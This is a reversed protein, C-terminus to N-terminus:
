RASLADAAREADAVVERPFGTLELLRLANRTSSTGPRLQFDFRLEGEEIVERFHRFEWAPGLLELLELDHTSVLVVHEGGNLRELVAKSAAVRETTNTGRFIEDIVFLHQPGEAAAEVLSRIGELEALFYSKGQLLDDDRGIMTRVRLFPARWARAPCTFLTQALLACVATGRIFTTKGAMNSGTVLLSRGDVELDNAVPEHLLPHYVGEARVHKAPGTLEPTCWLPLGARYSATSLAADLRGVTEFVARLEARHRRVLEVGFVFANVDLLFLMNAYMYATARLDDTAGELTLYGAVRHLGALRASGERLAATEAALAPDDVKALRAAAGTLRKLVRLPAIVHELRSRYHHQVGVNVAAVAVLVLFAWAGGLVAVAIAAVAALALVPFAWHLRPRAPLEGLFLNPLYMGDAHRLPELAERVQERLPESEGMRRVLADWALLPEPRSEPAHLLHYLVQRGVTSRTRDAQAFLADMNLDRWTRDDVDGPGAVADHYAAIRDMDRAIDRPEGWAERPARRFAFPTAFIGLQLAPIRSGLM